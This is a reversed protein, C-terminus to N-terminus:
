RCSRVPTVHWRRSCCLADCPLVRIVVRPQESTVPPVGVLHADGRRSPRGVGCSSLRPRQSLWTVCPSFLPAQVGGADACLQVSLPAPLSSRQPAAACAVVPVLWCPGCCCSSSHGGADCYVGAPLLPGVGCGPGFLRSQQPSMNSSVSDITPPRSYPQMGCMSNAHVVKVAAGAGCVGGQFEVIVVPM